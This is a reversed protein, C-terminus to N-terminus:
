SSAMLEREARLWDEVHYGHKYGREVFLEFARRAILERPIRKTTTTMVDDRKVDDRKVDDRKTMVDDMKPAPKSARRTTTKTTKTSM